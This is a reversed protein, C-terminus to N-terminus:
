SGVLVDGLAADFRPDDLAPVIAKAPDVTALSRLSEDIFEDLRLIGGFWRRWVLGGAVGLADAIAPYIPWVPGSEYLADPLINHWPIALDSEDAGLERAVPRALDVLLRLTPHNVTHMFPPGHRLGLFFDAFDVVTDDTALRLREVEANWTSTYGLADFASATFRRQIEIRELAHRWGWVVIASHMRGAPSPVRTGDPGRVWITDPHFARFFIKPVRMVKADRVHQALDDIQRREASTVWVDANDLERRLAQRSADAGTHPAAVVRDHPLMAAIAAAIGGTQCNSSVVIKRNV